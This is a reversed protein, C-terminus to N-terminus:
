STSRQNAIATGVLEQHFDVYNMQQEHMPMLLLFFHFGMEFLM